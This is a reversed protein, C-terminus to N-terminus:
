LRQLLQTNLTRAGCHYVPVLLPGSPLQLGNISDYAPRHLAPLWDRAPIVAKVPKETRMSKAPIFFSLKAHEAILKASFTFTAQFWHSRRTVPPANCEVFEASDLQQIPHPPSSWVMRTGRGAYNIGLHIRFVIRLAIWLLSM